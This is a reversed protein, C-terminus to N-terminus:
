PAITQRTKTTITTKVSLVKQKPKKHVHFVDDACLQCFHTDAFGETPKDNMMLKDIDDVFDNESMCFIGPAPNIETSIFTETTKPIIDTDPTVIPPREFKLYREYIAKEKLKKLTRDSPTPSPRPSPQRKPPTAPRSSPSHNSLLPSPRAGNMERIATGNQSPKPPTPPAERSGVRPSNSRHVAPIHYDSIDLEHVTSRDDESDSATLVM